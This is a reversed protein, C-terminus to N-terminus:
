IKASLVIDRIDFWNYDFLGECLDKNSCGENPPFNEDGPADYINGGPGLMGSWSEEGSERCMRDLEKAESLGIDYVCLAGRDNYLFVYKELEPSYLDCCQLTGMMEEATGFKM